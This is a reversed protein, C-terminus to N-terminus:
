APAAEPRRQATDFALEGALTSPMPSRERIARSGAAMEVGSRLYPRRRGAAVGDHQDLSRRARVAALATALPAREPSAYHVNGTAVMPCGPDRALEALADNRDSDLPDGHDTLEVM